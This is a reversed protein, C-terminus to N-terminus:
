GNHILGQLKKILDSYIASAVYNTPVDTMFVEKNEMEEKRSKLDDVLATIHKEKVAM